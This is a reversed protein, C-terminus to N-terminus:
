RRSCCWPLVAAGLLLLLEGDEDGDEGESAERAARDWVSERRTGRLRETGPDLSDAGRSDESDERVNGRDSPAKGRTAGARLELEEARDLGYRGHPM